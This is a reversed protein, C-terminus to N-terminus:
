IKKASCKYDNHKKLWQVLMLVRYIKSTNNWRKEFHDDMIKKFYFYNIEPIEIFADSSLTEILYAKLDQRFWEDIPIAFGRKPREFLESPIYRSLLKRLIIKKKGRNYKFKVPLRKSFELIKYDLLPSRAELSYAMTARDVKTLIDGCLYTKIDFDSLRELLSKNSYLYKENEQKYRKFTLWRRDLQSYYIRHFDEIGNLKLGQNILYSKHTNLFKFPLAMLKRFSLPISYPLEKKKVFEYQNYGLFLEDGGDGSLAVTVHEKTAKSLLLQGIDSTDDHPEDYYDQMNVVLEKGLACSMSIHTHDTGLYDAVKKAYESEDYESEEFGVCFTKLPTTSKKQAIAAVLSSDVGGSLFVGLPVDSMMRSKVSKNLLVDLQDISENLTKDSILNQPIDWYKWKKFDLNILNYVFACGQELKYIDNLMSLPEPVYGWELYAEIAKRNITTDNGVAVAHLSSSFEFGKENYQYFFPKKGLRDRAGILLNAKKDYIVFAFMGNLYNLFDVGKSLYLACIVETDSTTTFSYGENILTEKLELYNYIEGNFTISLHDYDYPQNSREELDIISLRAHGLTVKKYVKINQFDPGRKFLFNLKKELIKPDHNITSGYIGCM